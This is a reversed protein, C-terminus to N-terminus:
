ESMTDSSSMGCNTSATLTIAYSTSSNSIKVSSSTNTWPINMTTGVLENMNNVVNLTYGTISYCSTTVSLQIFFKTTLTALCATSCVQSFDGSKIKTKQTSVMWEVRISSNGEVFCASKIAIEAFFILINLAFFSNWLVGQLLM